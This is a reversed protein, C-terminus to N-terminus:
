RPLMVRVRAKTNYGEIGMVRNHMYTDKIMLEMLKSVAISDTGTLAWCDGGVCLFYGLNTASYTASSKCSM